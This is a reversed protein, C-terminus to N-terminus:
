EQACVYHLVFIARLQLYCCVGDAGNEMQSGWSTDNAWDGDPGKIGSTIAAMGYQKLTSSHAIFALRQNSQTTQHTASLNLLKWFGFVFKWKGRHAGICNTLECEDIWLAVLWPNVGARVMAHRKWLGGHRVDHTWKGDDLVHRQSDVLLEPDSLLDNLQEAFPFDIVVQPRGKDDHGLVRPKYPYVPKLVRDAMASETKSTQMGEFPSSLMGGVDQIESQTLGFRQAIKKAANANKSLSYQTIAAKIDAVAADTLGHHERCYTLWALLRIQAFELENEDGSDDSSDSNDTANELIGSDGTCGPHLGGGHDSWRWNGGDGTVRRDYQVCESCLPCVLEVIDPNTAKQPGHGPTLDGPEEEKRKVKKAKCTGARWSQSRRALVTAKPM